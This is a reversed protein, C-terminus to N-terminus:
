LPLPFGRGRTLYCSSIDFGDAVQGDGRTVFVSHNTVTIEAILDARSAATMVLELILNAMAVEEGAFVGSPGQWEDGPWHAWGWDEIIYLGGPRLRPFLVNLSSKTPEYLHSCDDVVLDLPEDDFDERLINRLREQDAQDTEYYLKIVSELSREAVYHDLAEAKPGWDLAVLRKPSFLKEYLVVSGGKYIGLDVMNVVPEPVARTLNEVMSRAKLLLFRSAVSENAAWVTPDVTLLFDVDDIQLHEDDVWHTNAM